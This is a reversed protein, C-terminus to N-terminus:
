FSHDWNLEPSRNSLQHQIRRQRLSWTLRHYSQTQTATFRTPYHIAAPDRTGQLTRQPYGPSIISIRRATTEIRTM